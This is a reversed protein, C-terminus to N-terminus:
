PERTSTTPSRRAIVSRIWASTSASTPFRASAKARSWSRTPDQEIAPGEAIGRSSGIDSIRVALSRIELDGLMLPRDLTLSRIPRAVGYLIPAERADSGFRGGHADAIWKGGTATVLSESRDFSFAAYIPRGGVDIRVSTQSRGMEPDLPLTIARDGPRHDRLTFITRRFPFTEPGAIGDAGAVLNRNSFATRRRFSADGALYRVDDTSFAIREPGIVYVYGIM